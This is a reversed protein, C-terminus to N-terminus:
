FPPKRPSVHNAPTGNILWDTVPDGWFRELPQWLNAPWYWGDTNEQPESSVWSKFKGKKATGDRTAQLLIGVPVTVWHSVKNVTELKGGAWDHRHITYCVRQGSKEYLSVLSQFRYDELGFCGNGAPSKHKIEHHEGPENWISIDPLILRIWKGSKDRYLATASKERGIQNTTFIKGYKAAIRCFNKEWIEGIKRDATLDECQEDAM